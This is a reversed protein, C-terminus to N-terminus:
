FVELVAIHKSKKDENSSLFGFKSIFHELDLVALSYINLIADSEEQWTNKKKVQQWTPTKKCILCLRCLHFIVAALQKDVHRDHEQQM